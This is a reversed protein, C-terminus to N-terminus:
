PYGTWMFGSQMTIAEWIGAGSSRLSKLVSPWSVCTRAGIEDALFEVWRRIELPDAPAQQNLTSEGPGSRAAAAEDSEM